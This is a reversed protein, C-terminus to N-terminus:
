CGNGSGDMCMHGLESKSLLSFATRQTTRIRLGFDLRRAIGERAFDSRIDMM